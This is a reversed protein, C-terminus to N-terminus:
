VLGKKEALWVPIVIECTAEDDEAIQSNPIWIPKDIDPFVFQSAGADGTNHLREEYPVNVMEEM